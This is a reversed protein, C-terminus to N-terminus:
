FYLDDMLYGCCLINDLPFTKMNNRIWPFMVVFSCFPTLFIPLSVSKIKMTKIFLHHLNIFRKIRPTEPFCSVKVWKNRETYITGTKNEFVAGDDTGLLHNLECLQMKSLYNVSRCRTRVLCERICSIFNQDTLKTLLGGYLKTDFLINTLVPSTTLLHDDQGCNSSLIASLLLPIFANIIKRNNM